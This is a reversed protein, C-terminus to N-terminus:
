FTLKQDKQAQESSKKTLHLFRCHLQLHSCRLYNDLNGKYVLLTTLKDQGSMTTLFLDLLAKKKERENRLCDLYDAWTDTHCQLQRGKILSIEPKNLYIKCFIHLQVSLSIYWMHYIIFADTWIWAHKEEGNRKAVIEDANLKIKNSKLKSPQHIVKEM